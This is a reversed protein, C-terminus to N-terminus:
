PSEKRHWPSVHRLAEDKDDFIRVKAYSHSYGVKGVKGERVFREAEAQTTVAVGLPSHNAYSRLTGDSDAMLIFVETPAVQDPPALPKLDLGLQNARQVHTMPENTCAQGVGAKCRPCAVNFPPARCPVHDDYLYQYKFHAGCTACSQGKDDRLERDDTM